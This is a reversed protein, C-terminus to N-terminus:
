IGALAMYVCPVGPLEPILPGIMPGGEPRPEAGPRLGAWLAHDRGLAPYVPTLGAWLARDLGPDRDTFPSLGRGSITTGGM